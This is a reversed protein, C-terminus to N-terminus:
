KQKLLDRIEALLVEERSPEPPTSPAAAEKRTLANVGKVLLFVAAAVITVDLMAQILDM